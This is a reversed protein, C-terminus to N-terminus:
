FILSIGEKICLSYCPVSIASIKIGRSGAIITGIIMARAIHDKSTIILAHTIGENGLEDVLSTFNGLTDKARYDLRVQEKPVGTKEILWAAHEKNSGGSIILPLKLLNSLKLGIREREIDGGLVLVMQPPDNNTLVQLYTRLPGAAILWIFLGSSALFCIKKIRMFKNQSALNSIYTAGGGM